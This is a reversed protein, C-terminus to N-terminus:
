DVRRTMDTWPPPHPSHTRHVTYRYVIMVCVPVCPVTPGAEQQELAYGPIREGADRLAKLAYPRWIMRAHVDADFSILMGIDLASYCM